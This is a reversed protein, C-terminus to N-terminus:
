IAYKHFLYLLKFPNLLQLLDQCLRFLERLSYRELHVKLCQHAGLYEELNKHLMKLAKSGCYNQCSGQM